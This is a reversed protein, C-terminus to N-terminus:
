AAEDLEEWADATNKAPQIDTSNSMTAFPTQRIVVNLKANNIQMTNRKPATFREQNEATGTSCMATM